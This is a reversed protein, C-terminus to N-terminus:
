HGLAVLVRQTVEKIIAPMSAELAMSVAARIREAETEANLAPGATPTTNAAFEDGFLGRALQAAEALPKITGIVESSEFPKKLIADCGCAQAQIEDVPELLGATLVVRTAAHRPNSKIWHCIEYGNRIPLFVDVLVVDPQFTDLLPYVEQGDSALELDFGEAILIREGLRQANASDDALLIRPIV